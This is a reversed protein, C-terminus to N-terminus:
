LYYYIPPSGVISGLNENCKTQWGHSSFKVNEGDVETAIYCLSQFVIVPYGAKFSKPMETSSKWGQQLLCSSLDVANSITGKDNTICKSIDLGGAILCQTVYNAGGIDSFDEDEGYLPNSSPCYKNAYKVAENADYSLTFGLLFLLM